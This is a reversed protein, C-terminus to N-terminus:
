RRTAGAGPRAPDPSPVEPPRGPSRAVFCGSETRVELSGGAARFREEIAAHLAARAEPSARQAPTSSNIYAEVDAPDTVVMTSPHEHWEVSGFAVGLVAAGNEKGFRRAVFDSSSWGLAQRSLDAVIDLHHAGNTAALLVGAPDLVRALEAVGRELDPLHYLMHNAVVVDFAGVEFPLDQVDATRADVLEIRELPRLAETAAGVMGPSLDTLTLRLHPLVPAARVWLAGTGCGVELVRAGEPWDIRGVLWRHWPQSARVYRAHLAMRAELNGPDKYQRERLHGPDTGLNEPRSM